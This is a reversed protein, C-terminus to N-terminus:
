GPIGALKAELEPNSPEVLVSGDPFVITPVSRNGHNIQEVISAAEPNGTIDIWLYSVNRSDLLRRTRYCDGCWATGFVTIQEQAM